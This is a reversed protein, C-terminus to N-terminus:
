KKGYKMTEDKTPEGTIVVGDTAVEIEMEFNSDGEMDIGLANKNQDTECSSLANRNLDSTESDKVERFVAKFSGVIKEWDDKTATETSVGISQLADLTAPSLEPKGEQKRLFEMVQKLSDDVARTKESSVHAYLSSGEQGHINQYHPQVQLNEGLKAKFRSEGVKLMVETGPGLTVFRNQVMQENLKVADMKLTEPKWLPQQMEEASARIDDFEDIGM